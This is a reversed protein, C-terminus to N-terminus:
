GSILSRTKAQPAQQTMTASKKLETPEAPQAPTTIPLMLQALTLGTLATVFITGSWLEPSWAMPAVTLGLTLYYASWFMIPVAFGVLRFTGPRGPSPRLRRILLDAGIGGAVAPIVAWAYIFAYLGSMLVGVSSFLMTVAGFPPQWRRLLYLVPAILIVNTVLANAIGLQQLIGDAPYPGWEPLWDAPTLVPSTDGFASLYMVFFSTVTVLLTLSLLPPLFSRLRGVDRGGPVAIAARLPSTVILVMGLYLLIHTPSLLAELGEEIGFLTHWVLDGVGGLAFVGLGVVGLGYGAPVAAWGRMGQDQARVVVYSIWGAVAAFGSYFLAHWPTFFTELQTLNIHAWGDVFVGAVLWLSVGLTVLEARYSLRNRNMRSLMVSRTYTQFGAVAISTTHSAGSDGGVTM